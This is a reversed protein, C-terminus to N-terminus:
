SCVDADADVALCIGSESVRIGIAELKRRFGSPTNLTHVYSTGEKIFTILGTRNQNDLPVVAVKDPRGPLVFHYEKLEISTEPIRSGDLNEIGARELLALPPLPSVLSHDRCTHRGTCNPIMKWRYSRYLLLLNGDITELLHGKTGGVALTSSKDEYIPPHTSRM